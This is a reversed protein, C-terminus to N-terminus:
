EGLIKFEIVIFAAQIRIFLSNFLHFRKKHLVIFHPSLKYFATEFNIGDFIISGDFYASMRKDMKFVALFVAAREFEDVNPSFLGTGPLNRPSDAISMLCAAGDSSM